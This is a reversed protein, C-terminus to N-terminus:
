EASPSITGHWMNPSLINSNSAHLKQPFFPPNESTQIDQLLMHETKYLKEHLCSNQPLASFFCFGNCSRLFSKTMLSSDCPICYLDSKGWVKKRKFATIGSSLQHLSHLHSQQWSFQKIPSLFFSKMFSHRWSFNKLSKSWMLGSCKIKWLSLFCSCTCTLRSHSKRGCSVRRKPTQFPKRIAISWALVECLLVLVKRLGFIWCFLWSIKKVRERVLGESIERQGCLFIDCNVGELM